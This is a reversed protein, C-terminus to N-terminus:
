ATLVVTDDYIVADNGRYFLPRSRFDLQVDLNKMSDFGQTVEIESHILQMNTPHSAIIALCVTGAATESGLYGSSFIHDSPIGGGNNNILSKAIYDYISVEESTTSHIAKARAEVDPTWVLKLVALKFKNKLLVKLQLVATNWTQAAEIFTGMDVNTTIATSVNTTDHLITEGTQTAGFIGTREEDDIMQKITEQIRSDVNFIDKNAISVEHRTLQLDGQHIGIPESVKQTAFRSFERQQLEFGFQTNDQEIIKYYIYNGDSPTVGKYQPYLKRVISENRVIDVLEKKLGSVAAETFREITM